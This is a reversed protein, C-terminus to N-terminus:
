IKMQLLKLKILFYVRLVSSYYTLNKACVKHATVEQGDLGACASDMRHIAPEMTPVIVNVSVTKVGLKLHASLIM